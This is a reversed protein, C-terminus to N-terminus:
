RVVLSNGAVKTQVNGAADTAYVVFRYHGRPLRCRFRCFVARNVRQSGPRLVKVVRGGHEIRITVTATPSGPRPDSIQYELAAVGGRVVTTAMPAAPTPAQTDVNVACTQTVEVNGALDVSRYALTHAGDGAHTDPPAAFTVTDGVLVHWTSEGDIQYETRDLGASGIDAASLTVTVAANHWLGDADDMTAPPATDAATDVNSVIGWDGALWVHAADVAAVRWYWGLGTDALQFTQGGDDTEWLGNAYAWGHLGDIFTLSGAIEEGFDYRKTWTAGGDNSHLVWCHAENGSEELAWGESQNVFTVDYVDEAKRFGTRRWTAGGDSTRLIEPYSTYSWRSLWVRRQVNAWGHQSDVFTFNEICDIKPPLTLRSWTTGGDTTHMLKSRGPSADWGLVWGEQLDLFQVTETWIGVGTDQRQWSVGGDTTHIVFDKAPRGPMDAGVAWATDGSVCDVCELGPWGPQSVDDWTAGDSTRLLVGIIPGALDAYGCAWGDTTDAMSLSRINYPWDSTRRAWSQGGDASSVIARGVGCVADGQSAVAFLQVDRGLVRTQWTQGADTTHYITSPGSWLRYSVAWAELSATFSVAGIDSLRPQASCRWTRGGDDTRMIRCVDRFSGRQYGTVTALGHSEDAFSLGQLEAWVLSGRPKGCAAWTTGGNTTRYVRSGHGIWGHDADVFSLQTLYRGLPQDARSWSAGGDTSHFLGGYGTLWGNQSDLFQVRNLNGGGSVAIRAWTLGGDTTKFVAEGAAWGTTSSIFDVANLSESAGTHQPEWTSGGDNSHLVTGPQEWNGGVTWVNSADGFSVASLPNGQIQPAQWFWTGDGTSALGRASATTPAAAVLTAVALTLACAVVRKM